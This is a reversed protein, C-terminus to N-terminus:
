TQFFRGTRGGTSLDLAPRGKVDFTATAPVPTLAGAPRARGEGGDVAPGAWAARTGACFLVAAVAGPHLVQM